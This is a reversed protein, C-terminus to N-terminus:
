PKAPRRGAGRLDAAGDRPLRGLAGAQDPRPEPPRREALRLRRRRGTNLKPYPHFSLDDMLPKTRDAPATRTASTTSSASRPAPSTARATPQDNGRPSLGVGIVNITPDTEKLADYSEPSCRSSRRRRSRSAKDDHVAAALVAAPEARQRHHLEEGVPVDTRVPRRLRRVAVNDPSCRGTAAGERRSRSSSGPAAGAGAAGDRSSRRAPSRTPEPTGSSPSSTRGSGSTTRCRRLPAGGDGRSPRTRTPASTTAPPPRRRRVRACRAPARAINKQDM